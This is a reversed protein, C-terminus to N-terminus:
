NRQAHLQERQRENLQVHVTHGRKQSASTLFTTLTCTLQLIYGASNLYKGTPRLNKVTSNRAEPEMSTSITRTKTIREGSDIQQQRTTKRSATQDRAALFPCARLRKVSQCKLCIMALKVKTAPLSMCTTKIRIRAYIKTRIRMIRSALLGTVKVSSLVLVILLPKRGSTSRFDDSELSPGTSSINRKGYRTPDVISEAPLNVWMNKHKRHKEDMMSYLKNRYEDISLQVDDRLLLVVSSGREPENNRRHFSYLFRCTIPFM